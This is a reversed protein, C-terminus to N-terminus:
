HTKAGGTGFRGARTVCRRASGAQQATALLERVRRASTEDRRRRRAPVAAARADDQEGGARVACGVAGEAREAKTVRHPGLRDSQSTRAGSGTQRRRGAWGGVSESTRSGPWPDGM